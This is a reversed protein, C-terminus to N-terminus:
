RLALLRFAQEATDAMNRHANETKMADELTVIRRLIPFFADIGAGNCATAEPAVSGALAIVPKGHKKAIRAVGVPTKGMVTQGDLRGEGTVVLDATRIADEIGIESLVLDIGKHLTAGLYSLFAFGLGGAAGAGLANEDAHPLITKTLAAYAKLRGDM